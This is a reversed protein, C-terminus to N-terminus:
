DEEIWILYDAGVHGYNQEAGAEIYRIHRQCATHFNIMDSMALHTGQLLTDVRAFIIGAESLTDAVAKVQYVARVARPVDTDEEGSTLSYVLAPLSVTPPIQSDYVKEGGLLGVLTADGALLTKLAKEIEGLDM